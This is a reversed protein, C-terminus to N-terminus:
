VVGEYIRVLEEIIREAAFDREVREKGKLGMARAGEPDAELQRAADALAESSGPPILMGSVGHELWEPIGGVESAIVPVGAALAELGVIGFPEAWLSPLWLSRAGNIIRALRDRGAWGDFVIRTPNSDAVDRVQREMPGAGAIMLPLELGSDSDLTADMAVALGKHSALRGALLHHSATSTGGPASVPLTDVFPPLVTIKAPEIGAIALEDAMYRSLATIRTVQGLADLRARTLELMRAGHDQEAFCRLCGDDLPDACLLGKDDVKGRGPCFFRHDQVMMVTPWAQAAATILDPDTV